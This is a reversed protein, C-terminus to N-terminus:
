PIPFNHAGTIDNRWSGGSIKLLPLNYAEAQQRLVQIENASIMPNGSPDTKYFFGIVETQSDLENTKNTEIMGENHVESSSARDMEKPSLIRETMLALEKNENRLSESNSSFRWGGTHSDKVFTSILQAGRFKIIVGSPGITFAHEPSVLSFSLRPIETIREPQDILDIMNMSPLGHKSEYARREKIIREKTKERPVAHLALLFNESNFYRPDTLDSNWSMRAQMNRKLLEDTNSQYFVKCDLGGHAVQVLLVLFCVFTKVKM